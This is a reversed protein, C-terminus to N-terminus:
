CQCKHFSNLIKHNIIYLIFLMGCPYFWFNLNEYHWCRFYTLKIPPDYFPEEKDIGKLYKSPISIAPIDTCYWWVPLGIILFSIYITLLLGRYNEDAWFNFNILEVPDALIIVACKGQIPVKRDNLDSYPQVTTDLLTTEESM